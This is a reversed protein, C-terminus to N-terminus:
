PPTCLTNDWWYPTFLPPIGEGVCPYKEWIPQMADPPEWTEPVTLIRSEPDDPPWLVHIEYPDLPDTPRPYVTLWPDFFLWEGHYEYLPDPEGCYRPCDGPNAVDFEIRLEVLDPPDKSNPTLLFNTGPPTPDYEGTEITVSGDRTETKVWTGTCTCLDTRPLINFAHSFASLAEEQTVEFNVALLDGFESVELEIPVHVVLDDYDWDNGLDVPLDEYAITVECVELIGVIATDEVKETLDVPVLTATNEVEFLSCVDGRAYIEAPYTFISPTDDWAVQGLYGFQSDEVDALEDIETTPEDFRIDATASWEDSSGEVTVAATNTRDSDDPLEV